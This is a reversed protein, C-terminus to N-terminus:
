IQYHSQRTGGKVWPPKADQMFSSKACSVRNILEQCCLQLLQTCMNDIKKSVSTSCFTENVVKHIVILYQGIKSNYFQSSEAQEFGVIIEKLEQLDEYVGDLMTEYDTPYSILSKLIQSLSDEVEIVKSQGQPIIQKQSQLFNARETRYRSAIGTPRKLKRRNHIAGESSHSERSTSSKRADRRSSSEYPSRLGLGGAQLGQIQQMESRQKAEIKLSESAKDKSSVLLSKRVNLESLWICLKKYRRVVITGMYDKTRTM